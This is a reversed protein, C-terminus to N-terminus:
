RFKDAAQPNYIRRQLTLNFGSYAFTFIRRNSSDIKLFERKLLVDYSERLEKLKCFHESRRFNNRYSNNCAVSECNSLTSFHGQRDDVVGNNVGRYIVPM